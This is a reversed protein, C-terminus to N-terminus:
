WDQKSLMNNIGELAFQMLICNLVNKALLINGLEPSTSSLDQSPTKRGGMLFEIRCRSKEPNGQRSVRQFILGVTKECSRFSASDLLAQTLSRKINSNSHSFCFHIASLIPITCGLVPWGLLGSSFLKSM